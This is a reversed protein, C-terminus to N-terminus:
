GAQNSLQLHYGMMPYTNCILVTSYLWMLGTHEAAKVQGFLIGEEPFGLKPMCATLTAGFKHSGPSVSKHFPSTLGAGTKSADRCMDAPNWTLQSTIMGNVAQYPWCVAGTTVCVRAKM